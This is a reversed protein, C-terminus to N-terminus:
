HVEDAMSQPTETQGNYNNQQLVASLRQGCGQGPSGASYYYFLVLLFNLGAEGTEPREDSM